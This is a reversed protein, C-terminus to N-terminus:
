TQFGHWAAHQGVVALVAWCVLLALFALTAIAGGKAGRSRFFYYPLAVLALALVSINLWISRPYAAQDSDIRYWLFVLLTSALMFYIESPAIERGPYLLQGIFGSAFALLALGALVLSKTSM